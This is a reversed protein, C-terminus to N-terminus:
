HSRAAAETGLEIAAWGPPAVHHSLVALSPWGGSRPGSGPRGSPLVCKQRRMLSSHPDFAVASAMSLRKGKGQGRSVDKVNQPFCPTNFVGSTGVTWLHPDTCQHATFPMYSPPAVM